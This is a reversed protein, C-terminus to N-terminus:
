DDDVVVRPGTDPWDYAEPRRANFTPVSERVEALASLDLDATIVTEKDPAKDTIIGWPNVVASRGYTWAGTPKKGHVAPAVVFVQNEIARAQLLTDWHDKGTHLTFMSPVVIVDAGELALIRYLEPFRVDFCISLGVSVGAIDTVVIDDGGREVQTNEVSTDGIDADFIHLKEYVAQVEGSPDIVCLRNRLRDDGPVEMKISGAAIHTNLEQALEQFVPLTPGDMTEAHALKEAETGTFNFNEPLVILDPDAAGAERTLQRARDVNHERDGTVQLQVLSVRFEDTSGM